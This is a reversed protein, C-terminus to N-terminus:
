TALKQLTVLAITTEAQDPVGWFAWDLMKCNNLTYPTTIIDTYYYVIYYHANSQQVNWCLGCDIRQCDNRM